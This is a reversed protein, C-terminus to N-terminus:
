KSFVSKPPEEASKTFVTEDGTRVASFVSPAVVGEQECQQLVQYTKSQIKQKTGLKNRAGKIDEEKMPPRKKKVVQAKQSM